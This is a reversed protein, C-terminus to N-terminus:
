LSKGSCMQKRVRGGKQKYLCVPNSCPFVNSNLCLNHKYDEGFLRERQIQM